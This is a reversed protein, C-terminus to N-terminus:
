PRPLLKSLVGCKTIEAEAAVTSHRRNVQCQRSRTEQTVIKRAKSIVALYHGKFVEM